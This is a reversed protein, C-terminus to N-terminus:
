ARWYGRLTHRDKRCPHQPAPPKEELAGGEQAKVKQSLWDLRCAIGPAKHIAWVAGKLKLIWTSAPSSSCTFTSGKSVTCHPVNRIKRKNRKQSIHNILTDTDCSWCSEVTSYVLPLILWLSVWGLGHLADSPNLTKGYCQETFKFPCLAVRSVTAQPLGYTSFRIKYRSQFCLATVPISFWGLM